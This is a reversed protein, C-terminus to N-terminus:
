LNGIHNVMARYVIKSDYKREVLKRSEHGMRAILKPDAVFREMAEFLAAADGVPILYGNEGEIVTERCGPADTTVIPRGIAMAELVSRPTGERYSPLVFVDCKNLAPRVDDLWAIHEIWTWSRLEAESISSPNSDLPGVLSFTTNPYASSLERTAESYEVVGKDRLLRGTMLFRTKGPVAPPLSQAFYATDVGSGNIITIEKDPPLIGLRMLDRPDDQNQFYVVDSFVLAIKYLRHVIWRVVRQKLGKPRGIFMSGLGTIMPVVHRYGAVKAALTGFIVPVLTYPILVDCNAKKLARRMSFLTRLNTIPGISHRTIDINFIEVGRKHLSEIDSSRFESQRAGVVVRHGAAQLQEILPLRFLVLSPAYSALIFISKSTAEVAM